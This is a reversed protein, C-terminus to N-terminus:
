DALLPEPTEPKEAPKAPKAATKQPAPADKQAGWSAWGGGLAKYLSILQTAIDGKSRTCSEELALLSRQADLVNNFDRLGSKYLDQSINVASQAAEVAKSLAQFRHYEQSYASLADRIERVANLLAEDYAARAERFRADQLAINARITGGRFLPWSVSPGFSWYISPNKFFDSSELSELGVSGNLRFRPYLDAAAEGIRASQAALAREARALDPRRRLAEAPIGILHKPQMTLQPRPARLLAHLAGPERGTLVALANLFAEEQALLSPITARTTEVNYRAQQVALDDGIGSQLRSNLIELTESQIELNRRAVLIRQQVTRLLAYQRAVEAAQTVWAHELGASASELSARAAEVSRRTGGFIDLEWSADFGGTFLTDTARRRAPGNESSSHRSPAAALDLAPAWRGRAAALQARAQRVREAAAKLSLNNTFALGMLSDLCPDHFVAWWSAVEARTVADRRAANGTAADPPLGADPLPASPAPIEPPRYDPGVAACGALACALLLAPLARAAAKAARAGAKAGLTGPLNGPLAGPLSNHESHNM